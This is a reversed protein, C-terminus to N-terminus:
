RFDAPRLLRIENRGLQIKGENELKKLIRSIVERASGMEHAIQQHTTLVRAEDAGESKKQLYAMVRDEMKWFILQDLTQLLDLYRQNYLDLLFRNLSPYSNIWRTLRDAPILILQTEDETVAVVKSPHAHMCAAFSMICTEGPEIYYLLLEKEKGPSFVKIRGSLVLPLSSVQSGERLLQTNPPLHRFLGHAEIEHVLETEAYPLYKKLLTTDM